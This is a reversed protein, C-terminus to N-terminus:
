LRFLKQTIRTDEAAAIDIDTLVKRARESIDSLNGILTAVVYLKGNVKKAGFENAIM